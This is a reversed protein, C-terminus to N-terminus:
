NKDKKEDKRRFKAVLHGDDTSDLYYVECNCKNLLRFLSDKTFVRVHGRTHNENGDWEWHGLNGEGNGYSGNPTSIYVAKNALSSIHKIFKEPDTVHELVEFASVVDAKVKDFTEVNDLYFEAGVGFKSARRRAIDIADKTLDVGYSKISRSSATIVLSGLYCALDIYSKAKDEVLGELLWRYRPYRLEAHTCVEEPEILEADYISFEGDMGYVSNYIEPEYIHRIMGYINNLEEELEPVNLEKLMNYAKIPEDKILLEKRIVKIDTPSM